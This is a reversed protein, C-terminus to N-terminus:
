DEGGFARRVIPTCEELLLSKEAGAPMQAASSLKRILGELKREARRDADARQATIAARKEADAVDRAEQYIRATEGSLDLHDRALGELLETYAKAAAFGAQGYISKEENHYAALANVTAAALHAMQAPSLQLIMEDGGGSAKIAFSAGMAGVAWGTDVSSAVGCRHIDFGDPGAFFAEGAGLTEFKSRLLDDRRDGHGLAKMVQATLGLTKQQRAAFDRAPLDSPVAHKTLNKM